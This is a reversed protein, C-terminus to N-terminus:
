LCKDDVIAKIGQRLTIGPFANEQIRKCVITHLAKAQAKTVQPLRGSSDNVEYGIRYSRSFNGNEPHAFPGHSGYKVHTSIIVPTATSSRGDNSHSCSTSTCADPFHKHQEQKAITDTFANLKEVTMSHEPDPLYLSLSLNPPPRRQRLDAAIRGSQSAVISRACHSDALPITFVNQSKEYKEPQHNTTITTTTPPSDASKHITNTNTNTDGIINDEDGNNNADYDSDGTLVDEPPPPIAVIIRNKPTIVSPIREEQVDYGADTLKQIRYRDIYDTLTTPLLETQQNEKTNNNNGNSGSNINKENERANEALLENMKKPDNKYGRPLSKRTHCCPVLALASRSSIALDLITDSLTGCCHVGVILTSSDASINKCIDGEVWHWRKFSAAKRRRTTTEDAEVELPQEQPGPIRPATTDEKKEEEEGDNNDNEDNEDNHLFEAINPHRETMVKEIIDCSKPIRKDIGIATRTESKDLFLIAWSVLGQGCGMDAVRKYYYRRRYYNQPQSASASPSPDSAKDDDDDDDDGDEQSPPFYFNVYLAMAWAEFLEKRPIVATHCVMRAFEDFLSLYYNSSCAKGLPDDGNNENENENENENGNQYNGHFERSAHYVQLVRKRDKTKKKTTANEDGLALLQGHRKVLTELERQITAVTRRNGQHNATVADVTM